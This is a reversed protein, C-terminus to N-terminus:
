NSLPIQKLWSRSTTWKSQKNQGKWTPHYITVWLKQQYIYETRYAKWPRVNSYNDNWVWNDQFPAQFIMDNRTIIKKLTNNRGIFSNHPNELLCEEHQTLIHLAVGAGLISVRFSIPTKMDLILYKSVHWGVKIMPFYNLLLTLFTIPIHSEIGQSNENKFSDADDTFQSFRQNIMLHLKVSPTTKCIIVNQLHECHIGKTHGPMM